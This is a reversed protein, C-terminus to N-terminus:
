PNGLTRDHHGCNRLVIRDPKEYHFTIRLDMNASAEFIYDTGELKKTRLFPHRIDKSMLRLAKEVAKQSQPDLKIFNDQFRETFIFLLENM